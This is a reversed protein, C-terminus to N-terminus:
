PTVTVMVCAPTVTWCVSAPTPTKTRTPTSSSTPTPTKTPTVTATATRTATATATSSAAGTRIIDFVNYDPGTPAVAPKGLPQALPLAGAPVTISAGSYTGTAVLPGFFNQANRVEYSEGVALIGTVDISVSPLNQWNFVVARARGPTYAHKTVFIANQTPRPVTPYPGISCTNGTGLAACTTGSGKLNLYQLWLQNGTFTLGATPPQFCMAGRIYNDTVSLSSIGAGSQCYGFNFYGDSPVAARNRRFQGTVVPNTGGFVLDGGGGLAFANDELDINILKGADSGFAQFNYESAGFLTSNLLRLPGVNSQYYLNHGHPRDPASWGQYALMAGYVELNQANNVSGGNGRTDHVYVDILKVNQCPPNSTTYFCDFGYGFPLDTPNSGTQTSTRTGPWSWMVEVGQVTFDNAKLLLVKVTGDTTSVGDLIVHEGAGYGPAANYNKISVGNRDLVYTGTYTGARLWVTDGSLAKGYATLLTCPAIFTCTTGTGNVAGYLDAANADGAFAFLLLLLFLVLLALEDLTILRAKRGRIESAM